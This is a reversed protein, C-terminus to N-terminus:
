NSFLLCVKQVINCNGSNTLLYMVSKGFHDNIVTREGPCLSHSATLINKVIRRKSFMLLKSM